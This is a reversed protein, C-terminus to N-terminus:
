RSTSWAFLACGADRYLDDERAGVPADVRGAGQDEPADARAEPLVGERHDM